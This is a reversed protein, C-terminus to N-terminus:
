REKESTRHLLKKWIRRFESMETYQLLTKEEEANEIKGFEKPLNVDVIVWKNKRWDWKWGKM